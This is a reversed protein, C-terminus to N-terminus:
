EDFWKNQYNNISIVIAYLWLKQICVYFIQIAYANMLVKNEERLEVVNLLCPTAYLNFRTGCTSVGTEFFTYGKITIVWWSIMQTTINLGLGLLVYLGFAKYYLPKADWMPFILLKSVPSTLIFESRVRQKVGRLWTTLEFRVIRENKVLSYRTSEMGLPISRNKSPETKFHSGFM